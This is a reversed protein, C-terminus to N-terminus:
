KKKKRKKKLKIFVPSLLQERKILLDKKEEETKLNKMENEIKSLARYPWKRETAEKFRKNLIAVKVGLMAAAVKQPYVLLHTIDTLIQDSDNNQTLKEEEEENKDDNEGNLYPVTQVYPTKGETSTEITHLKM